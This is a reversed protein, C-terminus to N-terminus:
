AVCFYFVVFWFCRYRFRLLLLSLVFHSANVRGRYVFFSWGIKGSAGSFNRARMFFKPSDRMDDRVIEAIVAETEVHVVGMLRASLRLVLFRRPRLGQACSRHNRYGGRHSQEFGNLRPTSIGILDQAPEPNLARGKGLRLSKDGTGEESSNQFFGGLCCGIVAEPEM